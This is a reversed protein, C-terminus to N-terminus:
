NRGALALYQSNANNGLPVSEDMFPKEMWGSGGVGRGEGRRM